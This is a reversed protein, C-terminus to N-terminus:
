PPPRDGAPAHVCLHTRTSIDRLLEVLDDRDLAVCGATPRLDDAVHVFIASGRGAVPPDDNYGVEVVLDYLGSEMWLQDVEGPHPLAVRRNYDEHAPSSCWGDHRGIPRTELGTAPTPLRDARYWVRRLPFRGAPTAGDGERKDARIGARGLVARYRRGHWVLVGGPGVHLDDASEHM